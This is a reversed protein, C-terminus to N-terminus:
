PVKCGIAEATKTLARELDGLAERMRKKNAEPLEPAHLDATLRARLELRADYAHQLERAEADRDRSAVYAARADAEAIEEFLTSADRPPDHSFLGQCRDARPGLLVNAERASAERRGHQSADVFAFPYGVVHVDHGERFGPGDSTTVTPLASADLAAEICRRFGEPDSPPAGTPELSTVKADRIRSTDAEVVFDVLAVYGGEFSSAEFEKEWCAVVKPLSSPRAAAALKPALTASGSCGCAAMAIALAAGKDRANM